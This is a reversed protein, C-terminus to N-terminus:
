VIKDIRAKIGGFFSLILNILLADLVGIVGLVAFGLIGGLVGYIVGGFLTGHQTQLFAPLAGVIGPFSSSVGLFVGIIVGLIVGFIGFFLFFSFPSFARIIMNPVGEEIFSEIEEDPGKGFSEFGEWTFEKGKRPPETDIEGTTPPDFEVSTDSIEEATEQTEENKQKEQMEAEFAEISAKPDEEKKDELNGGCYDCVTNKGSNEFGCYSCISKGNESTPPTAEVWMNGDFYYWRGTKAGITWCRGDKDTLRLYKLREKYEQGNIKRDRYEQKLKKFQNEIERFKGQMFNIILSDKHRRLLLNFNM